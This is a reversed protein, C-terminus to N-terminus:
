KKKKKLIKEKAKSVLSTVKAKLTQATSIVKKATKSIATDIKQATEVAKIGVTAQIINSAKYTTIGSSTQKRILTDKPNLSSQEIKAIYNGSNTKIYKSKKQSTGTLDIVYDEQKKPLITVKLNNNEFLYRNDRIAREQSATLDDISTKITTIDGSSNEVRLLIDKPNFYGVDKYPVNSVIEEGNSTVTVPSANTTIQEPTLPKFPAAVDSVLDKFANNVGTDKSFKYLFYAGIGILGITLVNETKM